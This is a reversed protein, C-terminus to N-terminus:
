FESEITLLGGQRAFAAGLSPAAARQRPSERGVFYLVTATVLAAGGVALSIDALLYDRQVEDREAPRCNPACDNRLESEKRDGAIGFGLLGAAGVVAVAGLAWVAPTFARERGPPQAVPADEKRAPAVPAVLPELVVEVPRMKESERVTLDRTASKFGEAEFRLPYVGPDLAVAHGDLERTLLVDRAFVSVNVLDRGAQDRVAFVLSPTSQELEDYWHSCDDRVLKPCSAQACSLALQLAERYRYDRRLSQTREHATFCAEPPAQAASTACWALLVVVVLSLRKM